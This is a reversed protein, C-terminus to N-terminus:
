RRGPKKNPGLDVEITRKSFYCNVCYVRRMKSGDARRWTTQVRWILGGCRPCEFGTSSSRNAADSMERLTRRRKM